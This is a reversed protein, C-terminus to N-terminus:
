VEEEKPIGQIEEHADDTVNRIEGRVIKERSGLARVAEHVLAHIVIQKHCLFEKWM